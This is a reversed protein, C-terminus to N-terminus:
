SLAPLEYKSIEAIEFGADITNKSASVAAALLLRPKGSANGEVEYAESLEQM